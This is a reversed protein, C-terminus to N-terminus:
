KPPPPPPPPSSGGRTVAERATQVAPLLLPAPKPPPPKFDRGDGNLDGGAVNPRGATQGEGSKRTTLVAAHQAQARAEGNVGDYKMYVAAQASSAGAAALTALAILPTLTKM